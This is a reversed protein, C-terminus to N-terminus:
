DRAIEEGEVVLISPKGSLGGNDIVFDVSNLIEKSIDKISNAPKEGSLNVSTTIFPVGVKQIKFSFDCDPIRVGLSDGSAVHKLFNQNKKKLILTYPGPLYRSLDVDV